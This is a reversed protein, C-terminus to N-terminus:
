EGLLRVLERQALSGLEASAPGPRVRAAFTVAHLFAVTDHRRAMGDLSTYAEPWSALPAPSGIKAFWGDWFAADLAGREHVFFVARALREPEAFTFFVGGPPAVQTGLAEILVRAEDATVRPNTGLQLVLDAGHAVGHRWGEVPDFGRYDRVGTLFRAAAAVMGSRLAAPLAPDIRDARAVESLALAAFPRGFGRADDEAALRATLSEALAIVTEAGLRRERLWSALASFAIGDRLEPDPDDLCGVLGIALSARRTDDAASFGARALALLEERSWGSPPCSAHARGSPTAAVDSGDAGAVSGHAIGALGLLFLLTRLDSGRM